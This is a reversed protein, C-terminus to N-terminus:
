KNGVKGVIKTNFTIVGNPYKAIVADINAQTVKEGVARLSLIANSVPTGEKIKDIGGYKGAIEIVRDPSDGLAEYVRKGVQGIMESEAKMDTGQREYLGKTRNWFWGRSKYGVTEEDQKGKILDYTTIKYQGKKIKEAADFIQSPKLNQERVQEQVTIMFRAKERTNKPAITEVRNWADKEAQDMGKIDLGDVDKMLEYFHAKTILANDYAGRIQKKAESNSGLEKYQVGHWLSIYIEENENDGGSRPKGQNDVDYLRWIDRLKEGKDQGDRGYVGALKEAEKLPLKQVDHANFASAWFKRDNNTIWERRQNGEERARALVTDEVKNLEEKTLGMPGELSRVYNQIKDTNPMQDVYYNGKNSIVTQTINDAIDLIEKGRITASLEAKMSENLGASIGDYLKRAGKTDRELTSVVAAKAVQGALEQKKQEITEQKTVGNFREGEETKAAMEGMARAVEDVTRLGYADKIIQKQNNELTNNFDERRQGAEHSIVNGRASEYISILSPQLLRSEEPSAVKGMYEAIKEKSRQDHEPTIGQAAGLNRNLLGVPQGDEGVENSYLSNQMWVRFETEAQLAKKKNENQQMTVLHAALTDGVDEIAMGLRQTSEIGKSGFAGEPIREIAPVGASQGKAITTQNYQPIQM